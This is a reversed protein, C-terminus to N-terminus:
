KVRKWEVYREVGTCSSSLAGDFEEQAGPQGPRLKLSTPWADGITNREKMAIGLEAAIQHFDHIAMYRSFFKEADLTFSRADWIRYMEAGEPNRLLSLDQTQPLSKRIRRIDLEQEKASSRKVMEMTANLYVTILTAHPNRAPPALLPTLCRLTERTGLWCMDAINSAEIRDYTGKEVHQELETADVNLLQFHVKGTALREIFAILLNRLYSFLKGYLDEAAKSPTARVEGIPWGNLPDAKDDLPWRDSQFITPNPYDFGRRPHGFPLVLGDERYRQKAVRMSPSADKFYWRDRYDQREPALTIAQRAQRAREPTFRESVDLFTLVQTWDEKKLVLRLTSGSNFTWTKGLLSGPKKDAIRQCVEDILPKVKSRLQSLIDETTMASYWVLILNEALEEAGAQDPEAELSSLALLLLIANRATVGLNRDNITVKVQHNFEKPLSQITKVVNRLDGSAAFLIAIDEGYSVGENTDLQLVDIAPTNGWFHENPGFPNHMNTAAAGHSWAPGRGERDWAPLWSSKSLPSKCSKKHESWHKVQCDRGCYLLLKCSGCALIGERPCMDDSDRWNACVAPKLPIPHM